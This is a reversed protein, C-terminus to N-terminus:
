KWEVKNKYSEGRATRVVVEMSWATTDEKWVDPLALLTAKQQPAVDKALPPVAGRSTRGNIMTTVNMSQIQIPANGANQMVVRVTYKEGAKPSSPELEFTVSGPLEAAQTASKAAVGPTEEFGAPVPGSSQQAARAETKGVNFKKGAPAAPVAAAASKAADAVAKATIAGTKGSRAVGNGPDKALVQDYLSIAQDYKAGALAQEAQSLLANLEAALQQQKQQQAQQEARQQGDRIRDLLGPARGDWPALQRAADVDGQAKAFDNQRLAAEASDFLAKAKQGNLANELLRQADSNGPDEKLAAQAQSVARGYDGQRFAAQASKLAAAAKGVPPAFSPPAEPTPVPTAAVPSPPPASAPVPQVVSVSPPPSPQTRVKDWLVYGVGGLALVGVGLALYIAPSTAPPAAAPRPAAAAPQQAAAPRAASAPRAVGRTTAAGAVVTPASGVRTPQTGVSTPAGQLTTAGRMTTAGAAAPRTGLTGREGAEVVTPGVDVLDTIAQPGATPPPELDVLGELAHQPDGAGAQGKLFEKLDVAFAYATPYRDELNKALSKKLIPMLSDYDPGAPIQDFDPDEHTIKYFVAMLNEARFPRRGALLEYFMCGVSFLDSRGDVKAGKVQEPSMYDATGVISGTGTMSATTLRAVGFDMIKVVGDHNLFVNAPKIDRHVIGSQHAHALGQLVQIIINVKRELSLPPTQRMAKQLDSGRLLEMAMYPSGDTHYGLDFVNVVNPHSMQAVAQAEREFRKMLEADDAIGAVMVKLAIERKLMVDRALYVQGMAGKGLPKVIEYKGIRGTLEKQVPAAPKPQAQESVFVDQPQLVVHFPGSRNSAM